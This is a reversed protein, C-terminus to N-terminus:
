PWINNSASPAPQLRFTDRPLLGAVVRYCRLITVGLKSNKQSVVERYCGRDSNLLLLLYSADTPETTESTHTDSKAFIPVPNHCPDKNNINLLKIM